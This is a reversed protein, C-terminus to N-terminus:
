AAFKTNVSVGRHLNTIWWLRALFPPLLRKITAEASAGKLEGSGLEQRVVSLLDELARTFEAARGKVYHALDQRNVADRTKDLEPRFRVKKLDSGQLKLGEATKIVIRDVQLCARKLTNELQEFPPFEAISSRSSRTFLRM